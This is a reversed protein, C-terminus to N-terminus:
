RRGFSWWSSENARHARPEPQPAPPDLRSPGIRAPPRSTPSRLPRGSWSPATPGATRRPRRRGRRRGRPRRGSTGGTTRRIRRSGEGSRREGRAEPDADRSAGHPEPSRHGLSELVSRARGAPDRGGPARADSAGPARVAGGREAQGRCGAGRRARDARGRAPGHSGDARGVPHSPSCLGRADATRGTSASARARASRWTVQTPGRRRRHQGGLGGGPAAPGGRHPRRRAARERAHRRDRRPGGPRGGPGRCRAGGAAAVEARELRGARAEVRASRHLVRALDSGPDLEEVARQAVAVQSEAEEVIRTPRAPHAPARGRPRGISSGGAARGHRCRGAGNSRSTWRSRCSKSPPSCGCRWRSRGSWGRELPTTRRGSPTTPRPRGIGGGAISPRRASWAASMGRRTRRM